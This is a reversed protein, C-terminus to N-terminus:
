FYKDSWLATRLFFFFNFFFELAASWFLSFYKKKIRDYCSKYISTHVLCTAEQQNKLWTPLNKTILQDGERGQKGQPLFTSIGTGPPTPNPSVVQLSLAATPILPFFLLKNERLFWPNPYMKNDRLHCSSRSLCGTLVPHECCDSKQQSLIM